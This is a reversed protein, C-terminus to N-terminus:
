TEASVDLGLGAAGQRSDACWMAVEMWEVVNGYLGRKRYTFSTKPECVHPSNDFDLSKKERLIVHHSSVTKASSFAGCIGWAARREPRGRALM